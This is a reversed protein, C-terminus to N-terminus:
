GPSQPRSFGSVILRCRPRYLHSPQQQAKLKGQAQRQDAGRGRQRLVIRAVGDADDHRIPRAAADAQEGLLDALPHLLQHLLRDDDVVPGAGAAIKAGVQDRFRRGVAVRQQHEGARHGAHRREVRLQREVRDLVEDRHRHHDRRLEHDAARRFIRRLVELFQHREGLLLGAGEVETRAPRARRQVQEGLHEAGDGADLEHVDGIAAVRRHDGRQDGVVDLEREQRLGVADGVDLAIQDAAEADGAGLPHLRDGVHLRRQLLAELTELDSAPHRQKRGGARRGIDHLRNLLGDGLREGIRLDAGPQDRGACCGTPLEGASNAACYLASM